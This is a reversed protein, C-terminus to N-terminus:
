HFFPDIGLDRAAKTVGTIGEDRPVSALGERGAAGAEAEDHHEELVWLTAHAGGSRSRREPGFSVAM